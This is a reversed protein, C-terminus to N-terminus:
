NVVDDSKLPRHNPSIPCLNVITTSIGTHGTTQRQQLEPTTIHLSSMKSAIIFQYHTHKLCESPLTIHVSSSSPSAAAGLSFPRPAQLPPTPAPWDRRAQVRGDDDHREFAVELLVVVVAAVCFVGILFIQLGCMGREGVAICLMVGIGTRDLELHGLEHEAAWRGESWAAACLDKRRAEEVLRSRHCRGPECVAAECGVDRM